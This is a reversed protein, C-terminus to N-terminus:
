RNASSIPPTEPIIHHARCLWYLFLYDTGPYEKTDDGSLRRTNRQWLFSDKPRQSLPIPERSYGEFVGGGLKEGIEDGHTKWFEKGFGTRNEPYDALARLIFDTEGHEEGTSARYLAMALPNDDHRYFSAWRTLIAQYSEKVAPNTEMQILNYLALESLYGRRAQDAAPNGATLRILEEEFSEWDLATQLLSDQTYLNSKYYEEFQSEHTLAQASRVIHLSILANSGLVRLDFLRDFRRGSKKLSFKNLSSTLIRELRKGPYDRNTFRIPFLDQRYEERLIDRVRELVGCLGNMTPVVLQYLKEEDKQKLARIVDSSGPWLDGFPLITQAFRLNKLFSHYEEKNQLLEKIGGRVEEETFYPTLSLINQSGARVRLGETLFRNGIRRVDAAMQKKLAENHVLPFATRYGFFFATYCDKSPSKPFPVGEEDVFRTLIPSEYTGKIASHLTQIANEMAQYTLSDKIAAYRWALSALYWGTYTMADGTEDPSLDNKKSVVFGNELHQLELRDGLRLAKEELDRLSVAPFRSVEIEGVEGNALGMWYVRPEVVHGDRGKMSFEMWRQEYKNPKSFDDLQLERQVVAEQATIDWVELRFMGFTKYLLGTKPYTGRRLTFTVRYLGPELLLPDTLHSLAYGPRENRYDVQWGQSGARGVLHNFDQDAKLKRILRIENPPSFNPAPVSGFSSLGPM